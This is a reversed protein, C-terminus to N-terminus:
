SLASPEAAQTKKARKEELEKKEEPTVARCKLPFGGPQAFCRYPTGTGSYLFLVQGWQIDPGLHRLKDEENEFFRLKKAASLVVWIVIILLFSALCRVHSGASTGITKGCSSNRIPLFKKSRM